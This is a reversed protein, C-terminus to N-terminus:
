QKPPALDGQLLNSLIEMKRELEDSGPKQGYPQELLWEVTEGHKPLQLAITGSREEVERIVINGDLAEHGILEGLRRGAAALALTAPLDYESRHSLYPGWGIWDFGKALPIDMGITEVKGEIVHAVTAWRGTASGKHIRIRTPIMDGNATEPGRAHALAIAGIPNIGSRWLVQCTAPCIRIGLHRGLHAKARQIAAVQGNVLYSLSAEIQLQSLASNTGADAPLDLLAALDPKDKIEQPLTELMGITVVDLLGHPENADM